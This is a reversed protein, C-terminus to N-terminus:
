FIFMNQYQSGLNEEYINSYLNLTTTLVVSARLQSHKKTEINLSDELGVQKMQM